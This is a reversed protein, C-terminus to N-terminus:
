FMIFKINILAPALNTQYEEYKLAMAWTTFQKKAAAGTGLSNIKELWRSLDNLTLLMLDAIVWISMITVTIVAILALVAALTFLISEKEQKGKIFTYHQEPTDIYEVDISM